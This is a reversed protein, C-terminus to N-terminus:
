ASERAPYPDGTGEDSPVGLRRAVPEEEGERAAPSRAGADLAVRPGIRGRIPLLDVSTGSARRRRTPLGDRGPLEAAMSQRGASCTGVREDVETLSFRLRARPGAGLRRAGLENAHEYVYGRSVGLYAAVTVADVLCGAARTSNDVRDGSADVLGRARPTEPPHSALGISRANAGTM